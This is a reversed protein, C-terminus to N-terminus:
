LLLFKINCQWETTEKIEEDILKDKFTASVNLQKLRM